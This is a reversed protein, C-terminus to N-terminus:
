RRPHSSLNLTGLGAPQNGLYSALIHNLLDSNTVDRGSQEALLESAATLLDLERQSKIRVAFQAGGEPLHKQM